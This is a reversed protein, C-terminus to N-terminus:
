LLPGGHGAGALFRGILAVSRLPVRPHDDARVGRGPRHRSPTLPRGRGGRRWRDGDWGASTALSEGRPWGVILRLPRAVLGCAVVWWRVGGGGRVGHGPGNLIRNRDEDCASELSKLLRCVM